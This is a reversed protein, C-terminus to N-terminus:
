SDFKQFYCLVTPAGGFGFAGTLPGVVVKLEFGQSTLESFEQYFDKTDAITYRLVCIKSDKFQVIERERPIEEKIKTLTSHASCKPCKIKIKDRKESFEFTFEHDCIECTISEKIMSM